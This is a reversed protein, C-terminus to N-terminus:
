KFKNKLIIETIRRPLDKLHIIEDSLNAEDVARPMGYVVCSDESQTINYCSIKNSLEKVGEMGDAGM